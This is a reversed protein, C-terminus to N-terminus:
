RLTVERGRYLPGVLVGSWPAVEAPAVGLQPALLSSLLQQEQPSNPLGLDGTGAPALIETPGAALPTAAPTFGAGPAVGSPYCKPGGTVTYRPADVGPLYKGRPQTVSVSVHLGPENTGSGLVKNMSPILDTLAKLTCPFSPSFRALVELPARSASSLRIINDQNSQLFQTVDQSTATLRAYLDDLNGRQDDVTNLTVASDTLADLLDPAIDGYNTAVTALDTLDQDLTPLNPNLQALYDAVTVLAQGIQTGRGDLAASIATLTTAIKQPQVAQLVPLLDDFVRELEIANASRDQDIRDGDGIPPATSRDPLSLQVYREGFLTKSVLLASVDRHIRGIRDPELALLVEAGSATHRIERVHGVLVGRAKVDANRNLQNGTRDTFLTVRVADSFTQRYIQISLTVLLAMVLLFVVGALRRRLKTRDRTM